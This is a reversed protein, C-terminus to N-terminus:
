GSPKAIQSNNVVTSRENFLLWPGFGNIGGGRNREVNDADSDLGEAVLPLKVPRVNDSPGVRLERQRVHRKTAGSSVLTYHGVGEARDCTRQGVMDVASLSVMGCIAAITFWRVM